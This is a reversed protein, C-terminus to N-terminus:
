EVDLPRLPLLGQGAIGHVADHRKETEIRRYPSKFNSRKKTSMKINALASSSAIWDLIVRVLSTLQFSIRSCSGGKTGLGSLSVSVVYKLALFLTCFTLTDLTSIM